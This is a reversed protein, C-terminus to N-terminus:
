GSEKFQERYLRAYAGGKDLLEAHTGSEVIRGSEMVFIKDANVITSLRHAIIITTRGKILTRLAEQILNESESDLSSTAEDLILIRPNKLIARAIAIRQKEGGSILIGGEGALTDYGNPAAMIFDHANAARAAEIVEEDTANSRGYRINMKLSDSFLFTEQPVIAIAKRLASIKMKKIDYDDIYINGSTPDYFRPILSVLTSKGSGSRGVLAVVEGPKVKLNINELVKKGEEYEFHVNEFRVRGEPHSPILPKEIELVESPTELLEFIRDVSALATQIGQFVQTLQIIPQFLRSLYIVFAVLDGLSLVGRTVQYGGYFIVTLTGIVSLFDALVWLSLGLKGLAMHLDYFERTRNMFRLSEHKERTFAKIVKAGSIVESLDGSIQAMKSRVRHSSRRIRRRLKSMALAHFPLVALAAIALKWNMYFLIGAIAVLTISHIFLQIFAGTLMQQIAQVDNIVRSMIRGAKERDYFKLHLWQLHRFLRNRVDFIIRQGIYQTQRVGFYLFIQRILGVGLFVLGIYTLSQMKEGPAADGTLADIILGILRPIVAALLSVLVLSIVAQIMKSRYPRVFTKYFKGLSSM